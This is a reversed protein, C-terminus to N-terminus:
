RNGSVGSTIPLVMSTTTSLRFPPPVSREGSTQNVACSDGRPVEEIRVEFAGRVDSFYSALGVQRLEESMFAGPGNTGSHVSRTRKYRFSRVLHSQEPEDVKIPREQPALLIRAGPESTVKEYSFPAGSGNQAVVQDSIELDTAGLQVVVHRRDPLRGSRTQLLLPLELHQTKAADEDASVRIM